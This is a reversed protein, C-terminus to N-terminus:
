TRRRAQYGEEDDRFDVHCSSEVSRSGCCGTEGAIEFGDTWDPWQPNVHYGINWGGRSWILDFWAPCRYQESCELLYDSCDIEDDEDQAHATQVGFVKDLYAFVASGQKLRDRKHLPKLEDRDIEPIREAHEGGAIGAFLSEIRKGSNGYTPIPKRDTLWLGSLALVASVALVAALRKLSTM